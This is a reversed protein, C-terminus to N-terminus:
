HAENCLITKVTWFCSPLHLHCIALYPWFLFSFSTVSLSLNVYRVFVAVVFVNTYMDLERMQIKRENEIKHIHAHMQMNCCLRCLDFLYFLASHRFYLPSFYLIRPMRSFVCFVIRVDIAIFPKNPTSTTQQKRSKRWKRTLHNWIFGTRM